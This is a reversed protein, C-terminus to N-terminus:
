LAGVLAIHKDRAIRKMALKAQVMQVLALNLPCNIGFEQGKRVIYGNIYDIETQSFRKVDQLMSSTNNETKLTVHIVLAELATASFRKDVDDINCLEPITYIVDSFEKLIERMLYSVSPNHLLQGNVCDFVVSLPNIVCNVALKELQKQVLDTYPMESASLHPTSTLTKILNRHSSTWCGSMRGVLPVDLSRVSASKSSVHSGPVLSLAIDGTGNHIASFTRPHSALGHSVIGIVYRPRTTKDPFVTTNIEDIIGMGNQLFCITSSPGLRDKISALASVTFSAKTAIILENILWQNQDQLHGLNRDFEPVLSGPVPYQAMETSEVNFGDQRDSVSNRIIDIHQGEEYWRQIKCPRHLLLTISLPEPGRALSHAVFKGINGVGIIHLRRPAPYNKSTQKKNMALYDESGERASHPLQEDGIRFGSKHIVKPIDANTQELITANKFSAVPPERQNCPM